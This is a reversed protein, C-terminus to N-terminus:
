TRAWGDCVVEYHSMAVQSVLDLEYDIANPVGGPLVINDLEDIALVTGGNWLRATIAGDDVRVLVTPRLLPCVTHWWHTEGAPLPPDVRFAFRRFGRGTEKPTADIAIDLQRTDSAGASRPRTGSSFGHAHGKALPSEGGAQICTLTGSGELSPLEDQVPGIWAGVQISDLFRAIAGPERASTATMGLVFGDFDIERRKGGDVDFCRVTPSNLPQLELGEAAPPTTM